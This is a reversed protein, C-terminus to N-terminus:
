RTSFPFRPVFVSLVFPKGLVPQSSDLGLAQWIFVSHTDFSQASGPGVRRLRPQPGTRCAMEIKRAFPSRKQGGEASLTNQLQLFQCAPPRLTDNLVTEAEIWGFPLILVRPGVVNCSIVKPHWRDAHPIHLGVHTHAHARTCTDKHICTNIPVSM